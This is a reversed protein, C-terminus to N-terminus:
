SSLVAGQAEQAKEAPAGGAQVATAQALPGAMDAIAGALEDLNRSLLAYESLFDQSWSPLCRM